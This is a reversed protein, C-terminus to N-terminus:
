RRVRRAMHEYMDILRRTNEQLLFHQRVRRAGAEGMQRRKAEDRLLGALADALAMPSEPPVLVGTEGDLVCEGIGDVRSAVVPLGSAMAELVGLPLGEGRSPQCYIDTASLLDAVDSRLGLWRVRDSVGQRDAEERAKRSEPPLTVDGALLLYLTPFEATMTALAQLLVDIGKRYFEMALCTLIKDQPGLGLERRVENRTRRPHQPAIGIHRVRMRPSGLGLQCWKDRVAKAVTFIRTALARRARAAIESALPLGDRLQEPAVGGHLTFFALPVGVLRAALLSLNSARQAFHAELVDIGRGHLWRAMWFFFRGGWKGVPRVVSEAGASALDQLFAQSTPPSEWVVFFRHGRAACERAVALMFQEWGGYRTSRMSTVHVIRLGSVGSGKLGARTRAAPADRGKRCFAMVMHGLLWPIRRHIWEVFRCRLGGPRGTVFPHLNISVLRLVEFGADELIRRYEQPTWMYEFFATEPQRGTLRRITPNCRVRDLLLPTGFRRLYNICPVSCILVGEDALVRRMEKLIGQPGEVDHEIVGLSIVMDFSNDAYPIDLLNARILRLNPWVKLGAQIAHSSFDLGHAEYGSDTLLRVWQGLGCGAELVRAPPKKYKRIWYWTDERRCVALLQEASAESWRADWIGEMSSAERGGQVTGRHQVYRM